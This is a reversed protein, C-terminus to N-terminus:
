CTHSKLIDRQAKPLGIIPFVTGLPSGRNEKEKGAHKHMGEIDQCRTNLIADVILGLCKSVATPVGVARVVEQSLKIVLLCATALFGESM